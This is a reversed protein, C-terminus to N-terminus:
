TEGESTIEPQPKKRRYLLMVLSAFILCGGLFIPFGAAAEHYLLWNYWSIPEFQNTGEILQFGHKALEYATRREPSSHVWSLLGFGCVILAIGLKLSIWGVKKRMKPVPLRAVPVQLKDPLVVLVILGIIGLLGILGVEKHYGKSEAYNMCGWVFLPISLLILAIGVGSVGDESRLACFGIVQLLVGIGVGTNANERRRKVYSAPPVKVKEPEKEATATAIAELTAAREETDEITNAAALAGPLDGAKALAIAEDKLVSSKNETDDNKEPKM